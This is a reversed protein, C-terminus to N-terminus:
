SVIQSKQSIISFKNCNNNTSYYNGTRFQGGVKSRFFARLQLAIKLPNISADYVFEDDMKPITTPQIM